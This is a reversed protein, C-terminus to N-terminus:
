DKIAKCKQGAGFLEAEFNTFVYRITPRFSEAEPMNEERESCHHLSFFLCLVFPLNTNILVLSNCLM